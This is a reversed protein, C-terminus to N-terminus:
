RRRGRRRDRIKDALNDALAQLEDIGIERAKLRQREDAEDYAMRLKRARAAIAAFLGEIREDVRERNRQQQQDVIAEDEPTGPVEAAALPLGITYGMPGSVMDPRRGDQGSM